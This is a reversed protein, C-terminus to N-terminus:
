DVEYVKINTAELTGTITSTDIEALCVNNSNKVATVFKKIDIEHLGLHNKASNYTRIRHLEIKDGWADYSIIRVDSWIENNRNYDLYNISLHMNVEYKVDKKIKGYVFCKRVRKEELIDFSIYSYDIKAISEKYKETTYKEGYKVTNHNGDNLNASYVEGNKIVVSGNIDDANKVDLGLAILDDIKYYGDNINNSDDNDLQSSIIKKNISEEISKASLEFSERRSQEVVSSVTPIAILAIIGLILIVALLEILTFGKNKM